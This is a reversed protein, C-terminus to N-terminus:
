LRMGELLTSVAELKAAEARIQETRFAKGGSLHSELTDRIAALLVGLGQNVIVEDVVFVDTEVHVWSDALVGYPYGHLKIIGDGGALAEVNTSLLMRLAAVARVAGERKRALASAFNSHLSAVHDCLQILDTPTM